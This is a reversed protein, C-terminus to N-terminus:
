ATRGARTPIVCDFMDVGRAVAGLLDDPTGVGMLYRPRDAPLRPATVDLMDFMAQQGEGVALGGIAYGEFGIAALADASAERQDRFVSGQVIGFQGYGDRPSYAARSRAAWRMSLAM